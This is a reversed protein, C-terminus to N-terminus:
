TTCCTSRFDNKRIYHNTHMHYIQCLCTILYSDSMHVFGHIIHTLAVVPWTPWYLYFVHYLDTRGHPRILFLCMPLKPRSMHGLLIDVRPRVTDLCMTSYFFSVCPITTMGCPGIFICCTTWHLLSVHGLRLVVRTGISFQCTSCCPGWVHDLLFRFHALVLSPWQQYKNVCISYLPNRLRVSYWQLM